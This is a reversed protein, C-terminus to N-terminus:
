ARKCFQGIKKGGAPMQDPGASKEGGHFADMRDLLDRPHGGSEPTISRYSEAYRKDITVAM